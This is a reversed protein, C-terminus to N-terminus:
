PANVVLTEVKSWAGWDGNTKKGRVRWYHTCDHLPAATITLTAASVVQNDELPEIFTPADDIQIQYQTAWTIPNWTLTPTTSTSYNLWPLSSEMLFCATRSPSTQGAADVARIQWYYAGSLLPTSPTYNLTTSNAVLRNPPNATDLRVEYRVADSVPSWNLTPPNTSLFTGDAPATLDLAWHRFHVQDIFLSYPTENANGDLQVAVALQDPTGPVNAPAITLNVVHTEGDITFRRLNIQGAVIAGELYLTHKRDLGGVLCQSIVPNFAVWRQDAPQNADWYRWQPAGAGVNQWQVAFEYRLGDYWKNMTFELAQVTSTGGVNACTTTPFWFALDLTFVTADPVSALNRYCHVNSYPDGGTIACELSEGDVSPTAVNRLMPAPGGECYVGWDAAVHDLNEQQSSPPNIPGTCSTVQARAVRGSALGISIFLVALLFLRVSKKIAQLNM